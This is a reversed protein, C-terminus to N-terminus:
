IFLNNDTTLKSISLLNKTIDPVLLMDKLLIHTSKYAANSRKYTFCADGVHTISLGQGNGIVLQNSGKFEERFNMNGM